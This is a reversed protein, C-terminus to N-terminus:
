RNSVPVVSWGGGLAKYLSVSALATDRQSTTLKDKALYWTQEADLVPLFDVLGQRYLQTALHLAEEDSRAENALQEREVESRAYSVLAIEVDRLAGLVVQQYAASAQDTRAQEARIQFRVQGADFILWDVSPGVSLYRSPASLFSSANLSQLGAAGTLFFHPYLDAQAVGIRANSAALRREAARIDPRRQLLDSPLGTPIGHILLPIARSDHLRAPLAEPWTGILAGIRYMAARESVMLPAIAAASDSVAAQARLVDSHTALGADFQSATLTLMDQQMALSDQAVSIQQQVSRLEIYNRAIEAFLTLKVDELDALEAEYTAGASEVARRRGGFIDLEWSADFGLQWLNGDAGPGLGGPAVGIPVNASGHTRDYEAGADASPYAQAETIGRLARAERVRAEAVAIDPADRSADRILQNLVPDDFVEWWAEDKNGSGGAQPAKPQEAFTTPLAQSPAVYDPGVTCGMIVLSAILVAGYSAAVRPWLVRGSDDRSCPSLEPLSAM